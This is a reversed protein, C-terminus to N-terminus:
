KRAELVAEVICKKNWRLLQSHVSLGSPYISPLKRYPTGTRLHYLIANFVIRPDHESHRGKKKILNPIQNCLMEWEESTIEQLRRVDNPEKTDKHTNNKPIYDIGIPRLSLSCVTGKIGALKAAKKFHDTVDGSLLSGLNKNSFVFVSDKKILACLPRWIYEPLYHMVEHRSNKGTRKLRICTTIGDEPDIDRIRMRLVEALTIYDNGAMLRGNLFWLIEAVVASQKSIKKLKAIFKKYEAKKIASHKRKKRRTSRDDSINKSITRQNGTVWYESIDNNTCLEKLDKKSLRWPIISEQVLHDIDFEERVPSRELPKSLEQGDEPIFRYSRLCGDEGIVELPIYFLPVAVWRKKYYAAIFYDVNTRLEIKFSM